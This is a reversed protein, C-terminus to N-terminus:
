SEGVSTFAEQIKELIIQLQVHTVFTELGIIM